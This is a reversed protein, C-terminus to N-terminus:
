IEGRSFAHRDLFVPLSAYIAKKFGDLRRL